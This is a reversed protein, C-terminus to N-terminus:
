KRKIKKSAKAKGSSLKRSSKFNKNKEENFVLAGFSPKAVERLANELFKLKLNLDFIQKSLNAVAVWLQANGPNKAEKYVPTKSTEKIQAELHSKIMPDVNNRWNAM